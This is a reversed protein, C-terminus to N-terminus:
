ENHRRNLLTNTGKNLSKTNNSYQNNWKLETVNETQMGIGNIIDPLKKFLLFIFSLYAFAIIITDVTPKYRAYWSLNITQAATGYNYKGEADSLNINISPIEEDQLFISDHLDEFILRFDTVFQFNEM